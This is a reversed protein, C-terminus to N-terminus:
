QTPVKFMAKVIQTLCQGFESLVVHQAWAECRQEQEAERARALLYGVVAEMVAPTIVSASGSGKYNESDALDPDYNRCGVCKCSHTCRINAEYCECYNKLCGSRKCNCGRSHWAKVDGSNGGSIKPKFADSNRALCSKIAKRRKAEHEPNNHCNTCNCSNCMAGSAFCECYQSVSAQRHSNAAPESSGSPCAVQNYDSVVLFDSCNNSANQGAYLLELDPDAGCDFPLTTVVEEQCFSNNGVMPVFVPGPESNMSLIQGNQNGNYLMPHTLQNSNLSREEFRPHEMTFDVCINDESPRAEGPMMSCLIPETIFWSTTSSQGSGGAGIISSNHLTFQQCQPYILYDPYPMQYHFPQAPCQYGLPDHYQGSQVTAPLDEAPPATWVVTKLCALDSVNDEPMDRNETKKEEYKPDESCSYM